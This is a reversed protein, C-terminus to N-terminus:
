RRDGDSGRARSLKMGYGQTYTILANMSRELEPNKSPLFYALVTHPDQYAM